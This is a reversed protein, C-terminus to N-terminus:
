LAKLETVQISNIHFVSIPDLGYFPSDTLLYVIPKGGPVIVLWCFEMQASKLFLKGRNQIHHILNGIFLIYAKIGKKKLSQFM